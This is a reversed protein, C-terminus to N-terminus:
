HTKGKVLTNWSPTEPLPYTFWAEVTWNEGLLFPTTLKVTSDKGAFNLCTRFTDPSWQEFAPNRSDATADFNTQRMRGENDFYSLQVNGECTELANIRSSAQVFGLIAGNSVLRRADESIKPLTQPTTQTKQVAQIFEANLTNLEAKLQSILPNVQNLRDKCKRLEENRTVESAKLTDLESQLKKLKEEELSEKTQADTLAKQIDKADKYGNKTQIQIKAEISGM